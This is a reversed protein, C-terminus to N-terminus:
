RRGMAVRVSRRARRKKPATSASPAPTRNARAARSTTGVVPSRPASEACSEATSECPLAAGDRPRRGRGDRRGAGREAVVSTAVGAGAGSTTRPGTSRSRAGADSISVSGLIPAASACRMTASRSDRPGNPDNAPRSRTRPTPGFITSPSRPRTVNEPVARGSLATPVGASVVGRALCARWPPAECQAEVTPM